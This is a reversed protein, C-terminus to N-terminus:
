PEMSLPSLTFLDYLLTIVGLPAHSPQPSFLSWYGYHHREETPVDRVKMSIPVPTWSTRSLTVVAKLQLQPLLVCKM